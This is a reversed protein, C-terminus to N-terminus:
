AAISSQRVLSTILLYFLPALLLGLGLVVGTSIAIARIRTMSVFGFYAFVRRSTMYGTLSSFLGLRFLHKVALEVSREHIPRNLATATIVVTALVAVAGLAFQYYYVTALWWAWKRGNWLGFATALSLVGFLPAMGFALWLLLEDSIGTALSWGLAWRWDASGM